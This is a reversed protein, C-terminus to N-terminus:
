ATRGIHDRLIAEIEATDGALLREWVPAAIQRVDYEIVVSLSAVNVRIANVGQIRKTLAIFPEPDVDPLRALAAAALKVRIRGPVHHAIALHRRLAMFPSLDPLM